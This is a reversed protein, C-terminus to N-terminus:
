EIVESSKGSLAKRTLFAGVGVVAIAPLIIKWNSAMSKAAKPAESSLFEKGEKVGEKLTDKVNQSANKLKKEFNPIDRFKSSGYKNKESHTSTEM